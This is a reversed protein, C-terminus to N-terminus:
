DNFRPSEIHSLQKLTKNNFRSAAFKDKEGILNITTETQSIREFNQHGDRNIWFM